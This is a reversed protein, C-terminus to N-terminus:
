YSAESYNFNEYLRIIYVKTQLFNLILNNIWFIIKSLFVINLNNIGM